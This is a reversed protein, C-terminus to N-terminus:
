PCHPSTTYLFLAFHSTAENLSCFLYKSIKSSNSAVIASIESRWWRFIDWPIIMVNVWPTSTPLYPIPTYTTDKCRMNFDTTHGTSPNGSLACFRHLSLSYNMYLCQFELITIRFYLGVGSRLYRLYPICIRSSFM